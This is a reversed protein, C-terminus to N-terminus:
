ILSFNIQLISMADCVSICVVCLCVHVGACVSVKGAACFLSVIRGEVLSVTRMSFEWVLM